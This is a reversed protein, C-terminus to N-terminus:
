GMVIVSRVFGDTGAAQYTRVEVLSKVAALTSVAIMLTPEVSCHPGHRGSLM